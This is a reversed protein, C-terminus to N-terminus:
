GVLSYRDLRDRHIFTVIHSIFGYWKYFPHRHETRTKPLFSLFPETTGQMMEVILDLTLTADGWQAKVNEPIADATGIRSPHHDNTLFAWKEVNSVAMAACIIEGLILAAVNAYLGWIFSSFWHVGDTYPDAGGYETISDEIMLETWVTVAIGFFMGVILPKSHLNLLVGGGFAPLTQTLCGFGMNLLQLCSIGRTFAATLHRSMGFHLICVQGVNWGSYLGIYVAFYMFIVSFSKSVIM